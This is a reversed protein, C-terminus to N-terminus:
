NHMQWVDREREREKQDEGFNNLSALFRFHSALSTPRQVSDMLFRSIQLSLFPRKSFKSYMFMSQKMFRLEIFSLCDKVDHHKIYCERGMTRISEDGSTGLSIM